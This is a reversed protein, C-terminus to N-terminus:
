SKIRNKINLILFSGLIIGIVNAIIDLLDAGRTPIWLEQIVEIVIGYIICVIFFVVITKIVNKQKRKTFIYNLWLFTLIFYLFIHVFKDIPIFLDISITKKIPTLFAYTIAITYGISIRLLTKAESLKKILKTM